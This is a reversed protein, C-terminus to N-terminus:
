MLGGFCFECKLLLTEVDGKPMLEYVLAKTGNSSTSLALLRVLNPHELHYVRNM